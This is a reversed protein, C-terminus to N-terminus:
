DRHQCAALEAARPGSEASGWCYLGTRSTEGQIPSGAASVTDGAQVPVAHVPLPPYVAEAYGARGAGAEAAIHTWGRVVTDALGAFLEMRRRGTYSRRVARAMSNSPDAWVATGPEFDAAHGGDDRPYLRPFRRYYVPYIQVALLGATDM